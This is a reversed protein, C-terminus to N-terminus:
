DRGYKTERTNERADWGRVKAVPYEPRGSEREIAEHMAIVKCIEFYTSKGVANRDGCWVCVGRKKRDSKCYVCCRIHKPVIRGCNCVKNDDGISM